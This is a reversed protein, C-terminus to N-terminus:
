EHIHVGWFIIGIINDVPDAVVIFVLPLVMCVCFLSCYSYCSVKWGLLSTWYQKSMVPVPGWQYTHIYTHIYKNNYINIYMWCAAFLPFHSLVSDPLASDSWINDHRSQCFWCDAILMWCSLLWKREINWYIIPWSSLRSATAPGSVVQLCSLFFFSLLLFLLRRGQYIYVLHWQPQVYVVIM